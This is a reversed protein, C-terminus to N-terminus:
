SAIRPLVVAEFPAHEPYTIVVKYRSPHGEDWIDKLHPTAVIPAIGVRKGLEALRIALPILRPNTKDKPEKFLDANIDAFTERVIQRAKEQATFIHTM